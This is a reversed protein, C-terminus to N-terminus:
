TLKKFHIPIAHPVRSFKISLSEEDSTDSDLYDNSTLALNHTGGISVVEMGFSSTSKLKAEMQQKSSISSHQSNTIESGSTVMEYSSRSDVALLKSKRCFCDLFLQFNTKIQSFDDLTFCDHIIAIEKPDLENIKKIPFSFFRSNKLQSGFDEFKWFLKENTLLFLALIGTLLSNTNSSFFQIYNSSLVVSHSAIFCINQVNLKSIQSKPFFLSNNIFKIQILSKIDELLHADDDSQDKNKINNRHIKLLLVLHKILKSVFSSPKGGLLDLPITQLLSSKHSRPPNRFLPSLTLLINKPYLYPMTLGNQDVKDIFHIIKTFIAKFLFSRQESESFVKVFEELTIYENDEFIIIFDEATEYFNVLKFNLYDLKSLHSISNFLQPEIKCDFANRKNHCEVLFKLPFLTAPNAQNCICTRSFSPEGISTNECCYLDDFDTFIFFEKFTTRFFSDETKDVMLHMFTHSKFSMLKYTTFKSHTQQKILYYLFRPCNSLLITDALFFALKDDILSTQITKEDSFNTRLNIKEFNTDSPFESILHTEFKNHPQVVNFFISELLM